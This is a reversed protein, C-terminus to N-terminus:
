KSKNIRFLIIALDNKSIQTSWYDSTFYQPSPLNGKLIGTEMAWEKAQTDEPFTKVLNNHISLISSAWNKDSAYYKNVAYLTEGSYYAGGKTLYLNKLQTAWYIIAQEKSMKSIKYAESNWGSDTIGWSAPNNYQTWNASKGWGTEHISICLLFDAGIGSVEEAKLFAYGYGYLPTGEVFNDLHKASVFSPRLVTITQALQIATEKPVYVEKSLNEIKTTLIAVTVILVFIITYLLIKEAKYM